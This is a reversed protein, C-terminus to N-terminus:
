ARRRRLALGTLASGLLWGAAPVPVPAPEGSIQLHYLWNTSADFDGIGNFEFDAYGSVAVFYQGAASLTFVLESDYGPGGDDDAALLSGDTNFLGVIPDNNQEPGEPAAVTLTIVQNAGVTFAYFDADSNDSILTGFIEVDGRLGFLNIAGGEGLTGLDQATLVSGNDVTIDESAAQAGLSTAGLLGLASALAMSRMTM